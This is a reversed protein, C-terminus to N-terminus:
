HLAKKLLLESRPGTVRLEGQLLAPIVYQEFAERLDQPLRTWEGPNALSDLWDQVAREFLFAREQGRPGSLAAQWDYRDPEYQFDGIRKLTPEQYTNRYLLVRRPTVILGVPCGVREMFDGLRSETLELDWAEGAKVEVALTYELLENSLVVLDPHLYNATAM